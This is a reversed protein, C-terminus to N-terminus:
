AFQPEGPNRAPSPSSSAPPPTPRVPVPQIQGSGAGDSARPPVAAPSARAPDASSRRHDAAPAAALSLAAAAPIRPLASARAPPSARARAVPRSPGPPGARPLAPSTPAPPPSDPPSVHRRLPRRVRGDAPKETRRRSPLPALTQHNEGAMHDAFNLGENERLRKEAELEKALTGERTKAEELVKELDELKLQLDKISNNAESLEEPRPVTHVQAQANLAEEHRQKLGSTRQLVLREVEADKGCLM